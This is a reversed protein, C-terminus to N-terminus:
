GNRATKSPKDSLPLGQAARHQALIANYANVVETEAAVSENYQRVIESDRANDGATRAANMQPNLCARYSALQAQYHKVRSALALMQEETATRGDLAIAPRFPVTCEVMTPDPPPPTDKKDKDKDKDAAIAAGTMLAFALLGGAVRRKWM